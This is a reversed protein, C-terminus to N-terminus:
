GTSLYVGASGIQVKTPTAEHITPTAEHITPTTLHATPPPQHASQTGQLNTPTAPSSDAEEFSKTLNRKATHPQNMTSTTPPTHALPSSRPYPPSIPSPVGSQTSPSTSLGGAVTATHAHTHELSVSTPTTPQPLISCSNSCLSSTFMCLWTYLYM